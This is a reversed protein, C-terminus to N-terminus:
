SYWFRGAMAGFADAIAGAGLARFAVLLAKEADRFAEVTGLNEAAKVVALAAKVVEATCLAPNRGCLDLGECGCCDARTCSPNAAHIKRSFEAWEDTTM